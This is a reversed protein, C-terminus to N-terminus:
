STTKLFRAAFPKRKHGLSRVVEFHDEYQQYYYEIHLHGYYLNPNQPKFPRDLADERVEFNLAQDRVNEMCTRMFEQFPNNNLTSAPASAPKPGLPTSNPTPDLIPHRIALRGHSLM